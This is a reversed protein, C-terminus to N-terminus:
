LYKKDKRLLKIKQKWNREETSKTSSVSWFTLQIHFHLALKLKICDKRATHDLITRKLSV